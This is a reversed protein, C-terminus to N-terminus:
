SVHRMIFRARLLTISFHFTDIRSFLDAALLQQRIDSPQGNGDQVTKLFPRSILREILTLFTQEAAGPRSKQSEPPASQIIVRDVLSGTPSSLARNPRLLQIHAHGLFKASFSSVISSAATLVWIMVSSSSLRASDLFIM